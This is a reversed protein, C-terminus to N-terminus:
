RRDGGRSRDHSGEPSRLLARRERLLNKPHVDHIKGHRRRPHDQRGRSESVSPRRDVHSRGSCSRRWSPHRDGSFLSTWHRGDSGVPAAGTGADLRALRLLDHSSGSCGTRTGPSSRCSAIARPDDRMTSSRRWRGAYISPSRRGSSMPSTPWSTRDSRIPGDITRCTTSCSRGSGPEDQRCSPRPAPSVSRRTPTTDLTIETM